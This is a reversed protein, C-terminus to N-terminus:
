VRDLTRGEVSLTAAQRNTSKGKKNNVFRDQLKGKISDKTYKSSAAATVNSTPQAHFDMGLPRPVMTGNKTMGSRQERPAVAEGPAADLEKDLRKTLERATYRPRAAEVDEARMKDNAGFIPRSWTEVLNQALRKNQDTEKRHLSLLKVYVGIKSSRLAGILTDDAEILQLSKLLGTRVTLNVLAGEMPKLWRAAAALFGRDVMVEHYHRKRMFAAVEPMMQAKEIAPEQQELLEDDRDAAAEMRAIMADVDEDLQERKYEKRGSKSKKFHRDMDKKSGEEIAEDGDVSDEDPDGDDGGEGGKERRREAAEAELRVGEAALDEADPASRRKKSSSAKGKQLRKRGKDPVEPEYEKDEEDSDDDSGFIRSHLAGLDEEEEAM